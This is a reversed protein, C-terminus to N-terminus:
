KIRAMVILTNCDIIRGCDDCKYYIGRWKKDNFEGVLHGTKSCTYFGARHSTNGCICIWCDEQGDELTIKERRKKKGKIMNKM